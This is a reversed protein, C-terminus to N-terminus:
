ALKTWLEPKEAMEKKVDTWTSANYSMANKRKYWCKEEKHYVMNSYWSSHAATSSNAFIIFDDQATVSNPDKVTIKIYYNGTLGFKAKYEPTFGPWTGGFQTQLIFDCYDNNTLWTSKPTYDHALMYEKRAANDLGLLDKYIREMQAAMFGGDYNVVKIPDDPRETGTVTIINQENITYTKENKYYLITYKKGNPRIEYASPPMDQPLLMPVKQKYDANLSQSLLYADQILCLEKRATKDAAATKLGSFTAVGGAGLIALLALTVCLEILTFGRKKNM